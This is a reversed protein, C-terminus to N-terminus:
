CVILWYALLGPDVAVYLKVNREWRNGFLMAM